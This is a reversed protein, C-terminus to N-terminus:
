GARRIIHKVKAAAKSLPERVPLLVLWLWEFARYLPNQASIYRGKREIGILIGKIQERQLPGEIETRNDGVMYYGDARVRVIRHLVLIGSLRRYLVVDGRKPQTDGIPAIRAADRGQVFLPYMSYGQPKIQICNGEELLQELDLQASEKHGSEQRSSEGHQSEQEMGIERDTTERRGTCRYSLSLIRDCPFETEKHKQLQTHWLSELIDVQLLM